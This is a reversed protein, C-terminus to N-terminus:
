MKEELLERVEEPWESPIHIHAIITFGRPASTCLKQLDVKNM